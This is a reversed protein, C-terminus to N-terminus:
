SRRAAWAARNKQIQDAHIEAHDAYLRLWKETSYPGSESHTGSRLWDAESMQDFLQATSTRAAEFAQLAPELARRQYHLRRAYADQDYGHIRPDDDVLLQRLRQGAITESDALHHVIERVSWEDPAPRFDLEDAGIGRLADVVKQYGATYRAILRQRENSTM